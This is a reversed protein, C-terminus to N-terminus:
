GTARLEDADYLVAELYGVGFPGEYALTEHGNSALEVASTAVCFSDVVDEAALERLAPDIRQAGRYDAQRVLEVFQKDFESARPHFGAPAGPRLRHSMDGSALVAWREDGSARRIALGMDEATGRVLGPLAILLTPGRWGAEAVFTLPVLAGHDLPVLPARHVPIGLEAAARELRAGEQPAGPLALGLGAIGFAGFDGALRRANSIGWATMLRPAHPSVIVIADPESAVLRRATQRMAKTTTACDRSREGGIAPIVIPAHCMLVATAISM